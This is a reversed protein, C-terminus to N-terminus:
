EGEGETTRIPDGVDERWPEDSDDRAGRGGIVGEDRLGQVEVVPPENSVDLVVV